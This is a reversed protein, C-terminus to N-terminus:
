PLAIFARIRTVNELLLRLEQELASISVEFFETKRKILIEGKLMDLTYPYIYRNNRFDCIMESDTEEDILNFGGVGRSAEIIEQDYEDIHEVMNRARKDSLIPFSSKSFRFNNCNARKRERISEKKESGTIIFRNSIQGVAYLLHDTYYHFQQCRNEWDFTDDKSRLHYISALASRIQFDLYYAAECEYALEDDNAIYFVGNADLPM